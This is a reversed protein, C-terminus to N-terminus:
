DSVPSKNQDPPRRSYQPNWHVAQRASHGSLGSSLPLNDCTQTALRCSVPRQLALRKQWQRELEMAREAVKEMAGVELSLEERSLTDLLVQLLDVLMERDGVLSLATEEDLIATMLKGGTKMIRLLGGQRRRASAPAYM